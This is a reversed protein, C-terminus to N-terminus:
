NSRNGNMFAEALMPESLLFGQVMDCGRQKLWRLQTEAEVGQAVVEIEFAKALNFMTLLLTQQKPLELDQIFQRHIKLRRVGLHQLAALNSAGLGFDDLAVDVEINRLASITKSEYFQQSTESVELCLVRGPLRHQELQAQLTEVVNHRALCQTSVNVSFQLDPELKHWAACNQLVTEIVWDDLQASLGVTKLLPLFAAPSLLGLRPHQWRLLAEYGHVRNTKLNIQPQYYLCFSKQEFAKVVEEALLQKQERIQQLQPTYWHSQNKGLRKGHYLAMDAADLLSEPSQGNDPFLSIGISIGVYVTPELVFPAKFAELLRDAVSQVTRLEAIHPLLIVFEDGGWRSLFDTPRLNEELRKAVAKLLKDGFQHGWTDNIDKFTDLDLFLVALQSLENSHADIWRKLQQSFQERRPLQTLPDAPIISTSRNSEIAKALLQAFDQLETPNIHHQSTKWDFLYFTGFVGKVSNKLQTSVSYSVSPKGQLFPHQAEPNSDLTYTAVNVDFLQEAHRLLGEVLDPMNERFGAGNTSDSIQFPETSVDLVQKM